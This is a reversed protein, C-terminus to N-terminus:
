DDRRTYAYVTKGTVISAYIADSQSHGEFFTFITAGMGLALSALSAGGGPVQDKWSSALDM